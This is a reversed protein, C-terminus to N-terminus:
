SDGEEVNTSVNEVESGVDYLLQNGLYIIVPTTGLYVAKIKGNAGYLLKNVENM